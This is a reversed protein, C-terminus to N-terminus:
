HFSQTSFLMFELLAPQLLFHLVLTVSLCIGYVESKFFLFCVKVMLIVFHLFEEYPIKNKSLEALHECIIKVRM